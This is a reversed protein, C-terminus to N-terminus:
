AVLAPPPRGRWHATLAETLYDLADRGRQRCTTTVSLLRAACISGFDSRTGQTLKRWIVGARIQREAHNNTPELGDVDLFNFVAPWLKLLSKGLKRWLHDCTEADSDQALGGECYDKLHDRFADTAAKLGARDLEGNKFAHWSRFMTKEGVRIAEALQAGTGKADIIAQLDRGLHSWCLQRKKVDFINYVCWRDSHVYGNYGDPFWDEVVDKGRRPHITFLTFDLTAGVWLWAKESWQRWGTEDLYVSPAERLAAELEEQPKELSAGVREVCSQVTGTAIRVGFVDALLDVVLSRSLRYRQSLLGIFSTLRPGQGTTHEAGRRATTVGACEPCSLSHLWHHILELKVPPLEFQQRPLPKGADAAGALSADCHDCHDPRHHVVRDAEEVPRLERTTGPHGPQGGAQRGSSKREDKRKEKRKGAQDPRDSSPPKHSNSSDKGLRAVLEKLLKSQEALKQELEAVRALAAEAISRWDIDDPPM